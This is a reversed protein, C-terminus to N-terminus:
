KGEVRRRIVKGIRPPNSLLYVVAVALMLTTACAHMYTLSSKTPLGTRQAWTPTDDGPSRPALSAFTPIDNM